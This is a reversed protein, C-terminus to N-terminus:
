VEFVNANEMEIWSVIQKQVYQLSLKFYLMANDHMNITTSSGVHSMKFSQREVLQALCASNKLCKTKLHVIHTM